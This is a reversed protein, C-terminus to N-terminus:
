HELYDFIPQVGELFSVDGRFELGLFIGRLKWGETAMREEVWSGSSLIPGVLLWLRVGTEIWSSMLGDSIV